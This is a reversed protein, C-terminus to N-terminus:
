KLNSESTNNSKLNTLANLFASRFQAGLKEGSYGDLLRVDLANATRAYYCVWIPTYVISHIRSQISLSAMRLKRQRMMLLFFKNKSTEVITEENVDEPIRILIDYNVSNSEETDKMREFLSTTTSWPDVSIFLHASNSEGSSVFHSVAFIPWGVIEYKPIKNSTYYNGVGRFSHLREFIYKKVKYFAPPTLNKRAEELSVRLPLYLVKFKSSM